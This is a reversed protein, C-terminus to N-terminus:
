DTTVCPQVLKRQTCRELLSEEIAEFLEWPDKSVDNIIKTKDADLLTM